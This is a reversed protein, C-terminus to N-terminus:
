FPSNRNATSQPSVFKELGSTSGDFTCFRFQAEGLQFKADKFLCSDFVMPNGCTISAIPEVNRMMVEFRPADPRKDLNSSFLFGGTGTKRINELVVKNPVRVAHAYDFNQSVSMDLLTVQREAHVTLNQMVIEGFLDGIDGRSALIGSPNYIQCNEIFLNGGSFAFATTPVFRWASLDAAPTCYGPITTGMAHIKVNRITYNMGYHDDIRNYFGGEITVDKNCRGAIGDRCNISVCNNFTLLSATGNLFNYGLGHHTAGSIYADNYTVNCCGNNNVLASLTAKPNNCFVKLKNFTVNSRFVSLAAGNELRLVEDQPNDVQVEIALGNITLPAQPPQYHVTLNVERWTRICDRTGDAFTFKYITTGPTPSSPGLAVEGRYKHSFTAGPGSPWTAKHLKGEFSCYDGKAYLTEANWEPAEPPPLYSYMLEPYFDGRGSVLMSSETKDYWQDGYQNNRSSFFDTSFLHFTGGEQLDIQGSGDALPIQRFTPLQFDGAKLGLFPDAQLAIQPQDNAIIVRFSKRVAHSPVYTFNGIRSRAQDVELQQVLTGLCEVNCRIYLNGTFLYRGQSIRLTRGESYQALNAAQQLPRTDDSCGDGKAGFWQPLVERVKVKGTVQGPGDFVQYSGAQLAGDIQLQKGVQIMAGALVHLEVQPPVVASELKLTGAGLRLTGGAPPLAAVAAAFAATDDAGPVLEVIGGVATLPKPSRQDSLLACGSASVLLLLATLILCILASQKM